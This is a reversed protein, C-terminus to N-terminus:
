ASRPVEVGLARAISATADGSDDVVVIQDIAGCDRLPTLARLIAAITREEDRAPLCVSATDRREVALREASFQSHHFTRSRQWSRLQISM